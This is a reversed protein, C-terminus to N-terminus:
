ATGDSSRRSRPPDDLEVGRATLVLVLLVAGTIAMDAVNFVPFTPLPWEAELFDVVAGRFPGPARFVRDILNGLAGGLLGGLAVAWLPHRLRPAVRVLAAVVVIAIVTIIGTSGSGLSFAAGTNFVLRLQLVGDVVVVPAGDALARLAWAKSAQDILLVVLVTAAV